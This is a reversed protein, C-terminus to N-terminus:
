AVSGAARDAPPVRYPPFQLSARTGDGEVSTIVLRGGHLEVLRKVLPLGIGMGGPDTRGSREIRGYLHLAREIEEPSMGSGCDAVAIELSGDGNIKASLEVRSGADGYKLANTVLNILMQIVLSRDAMLAMDEHPPAYSVSICRDLRLKMVSRDVREFLDLVSIREERVEVEGRKLRALNLMGDTIAMVQEATESIMGSLEEYRENGVPGFVRSEMTRALEVLTALPSRIEHAVISFLDLRADRASRDEQDAAGPQFTRRRLELIEMTAEAFDRLASVDDGEFAERAALDVICFAGLRFGKRTILPAGAYFRLKPDETVLPNGSFRRDQTADLVVLPDDSLISHACLAVHRPTERATLGQRSKFWQRAQDVLSVVAIPVRFQKCALRTLCDFAEEPPTDLVGYSALADLRAADNFPVPF